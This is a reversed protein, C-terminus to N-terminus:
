IFMFGWVKTPSKREEGSNQEKISEHHARDWMNLCTSVILKIQKNLRCRECSSPFLTHVCLCVCECMSYVSDCEQVWGKWWQVEWM